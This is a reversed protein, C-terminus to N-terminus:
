YRTAFKIRDCIVPRDHWLLIYRVNRFKTKSRIVNGLNTLPSSRTTQYSRGDFITFHHPTNPRIVSVRIKKQRRFRNSYVREVCPNSSSFIRVSSHIDMRCAYQSYTIPRLLWNRSRENVRGRSILRCVHHFHSWIIRDSPQSKIKKAM